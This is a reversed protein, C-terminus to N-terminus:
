RTPSRAASRSAATPTCSASSPSTRCVLPRDGNTQLVDGDPCRQIRPLTYSGPAPLRQREVRPGGPTPAADGAAHAAQAALPLLAAALVSRRALRSPM